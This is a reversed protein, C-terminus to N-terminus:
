QTQPRSKLYNAVNSNAEVQDRNCKLSPYKDLINPYRLLMSQSTNYFHLDAWTLNNDVFYPGGNGFAKMLSELQNLLKPLEENQFKEELLKKKDPDQEFMIPIFKATVDAITDVVADAQAQEMNDKGALHFQKALFRAIALSQPIKVGDVELVPLQGLPM